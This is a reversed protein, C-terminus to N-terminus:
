KFQLGTTMKVLGILGYVTGILLLGTTALFIQGERASHYSAITLAAGLAALALGFAFLRLGSRRATRRQMRKLATMFRTAVEDSLGRKILHAKVAAASEGADLRAAAYHILQQWMQETSM